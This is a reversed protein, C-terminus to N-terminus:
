GANRQRVGLEVIGPKRLFRSNIFFCGQPVLGRSAKKHSVIWIFLYAPKINDPFILRLKGTEAEGWSM